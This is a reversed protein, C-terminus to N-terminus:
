ESPLWESRGQRQERLPPYVRSKVALAIVESAFSSSTHIYARNEPDDRVPTVYSSTPRRQAITNSKYRRCQADSNLRLVRFEPSSPRDAVLERSPRSSCSPTLLRPAVVGGVVLVPVSDPDTEPRYHTDGVTRGGESVSLPSSQRLRNWRGVGWGTGFAVPEMGRIWVALRRLWGSPSLLATWLSFPSSRTWLVQPGHTDGM